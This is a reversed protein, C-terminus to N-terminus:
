PLFGQSDDAFLEASSAADAHFFTREFCNCDHIKSGLESFLFDMLVSYVRITKVFKRHGLFVCNNSHDSLLPTPFDVASFM